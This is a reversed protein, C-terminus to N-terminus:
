ELIEQNTEIECEDYEIGLDDYIKDKFKQSPIGKVGLISTKWTVGGFDNETAEIRFVVKSLM